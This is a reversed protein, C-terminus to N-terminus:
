KGNAQRRWQWLWSSRANAGIIGGSAASYSSLPTIREPAAMLCGGSVGGRRRAVDLASLCSLLIRQETV